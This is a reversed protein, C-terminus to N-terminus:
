GIGIEDDKLENDIALSVNSFYYNYIDPSSLNEFEELEILKDYTNKNVYIYNVIKKNTNQFQILHSYLNEIMQQNYEQM